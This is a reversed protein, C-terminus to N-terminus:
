YADRSDAAADAELGRETTIGLHCCELFECAHNAADRLSALCVADPLTALNLAGRKDSEYRFAQGHPDVEQFRRLVTEVEDLKESSGSSWHRVVVARAKEWLLLLDHTHVFSADDLSLACLNKLSVELAHRYLFAIPFLFRDPHGPTVEAHAVALDAIEKFSEAIFRSRAPDLWRVQAGSYHSTAAFPDM